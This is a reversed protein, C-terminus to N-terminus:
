SASAVEISTSSRFQLKLQHDKTDQRVRAPSFHWNGIWLWTICCILKQATKMFVGVYHSMKIKPLFNKRFQLSCIQHHLFYKKPPFYKLMQRLTRHYRDSCGLICFTSSCIAPFGFVVIFSSATNYSLYSIVTIRFSFPNNEKDRTSNLFVQGWPYNIILFRRM